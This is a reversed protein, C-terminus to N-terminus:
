HQLKCPDSLSDSRVAAERLAVACVEHLQPPCHMWAMDQGGFKCRAAVGEGPDTSPMSRSTCPVHGSETDGRHLNCIRNPRSHKGRVPRGRFGLRTLGTGASDQSGEGETRRGAKAAGRKFTGVRASWGPSGLCYLNACLQERCPEETSYPAKVRQARWQAPGSALFCLLMKPCVMTANFTSAQANCGESIKCTPFPAYRLLPAQWGFRSFMLVCQGHLCVLARTGAM